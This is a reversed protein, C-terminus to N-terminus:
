KIEMERVGSNREIEDLSMCPLVNKKNIELFRINVQDIDLNSVYGANIYIFM